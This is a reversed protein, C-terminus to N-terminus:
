LCTLKFILKFKFALERDSEYLDHVNQFSHSAICIMLSKKKIM